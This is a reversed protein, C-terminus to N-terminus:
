ERAPTQFLNKETKGGLQKGGLGKGVTGKGFKEVENEDNLPIKGPTKPPVRSGATQNLPKAAAAQQRAHVANEQDIRAALM